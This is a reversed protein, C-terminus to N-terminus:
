FAARGRRELRGNIYPFEALDADLTSQRDPYDTNLVEFLEGLWRGLDSGDFVTRREILDLFQDKNNFIRTDDAFLVFLLRVLLLELDHGGFGTEALAEHLQGMLQSAKVNAPSQRRNLRPQVGLIFAFAEVNEKLDGLLFRWERGEELDLLHWRQFDCTLIYRPRQAEPLWDYYDLAQTSAKRLDLGASKQEVILTGPWFLDIFGQKDGPLNRVRQEYTAVQRRSVGFCDFFENYFTQTEGKEYRANKHAEAFAAARARIESWQLRM